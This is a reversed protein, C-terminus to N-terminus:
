HLLRYLQAKPETSSGEPQSLWIYPSSHMFTLYTAAIQLLAELSYLLIHIEEVTALM